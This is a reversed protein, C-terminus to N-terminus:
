NHVIEFSALRYSNAAMLFYSILLSIILINPIQISIFGILFVIDILTHIIRISVKTYCISCTNLIVVLVLNVIQGSKIWFVSVFGIFSLIPCLIYPSGPVSSIFIGFFDPLGRRLVFYEFNFFHIFLIGCILTTSPKALFFIFLIQGEHNFIYESM